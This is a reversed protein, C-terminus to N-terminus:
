LRCVLNCPSQLESTHEEPRHWFQDDGEDGDEFKGFFIKHFDLLAFYQPIDIDSCTSGNSCLSVCNITRGSSEIGTRASGKAGTRGSSPSVVSPVVLWRVLGAFSAPCTM